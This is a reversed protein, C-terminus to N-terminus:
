EPKACRATDGGCQREELIERAVERIENSRLRDDIISHLQEPSYSQMQERWREQLPRPDIPEEKPGGRFATVLQMIGVAAASIGIGWECTTEAPLVFLNVCALVLYFLGSVLLLRNVSRKKESAKM